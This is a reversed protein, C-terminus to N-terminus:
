VNNSETKAYVNREFLEHINRKFSTKETKAYVIRDIIQLSDM